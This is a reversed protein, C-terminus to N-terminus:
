PAGRAVPTRTAPPKSEIRKLAELLQSENPLVQLGSQLAEIAQQRRGISMNLKATELYAPWYDPKTARSRDFFDIAQVWDGLAAHYTGVRYFIEPLLVFEKPAHRLVYQFESIASGYLGARVQPTVGPAAARNAKLIGWCYHHMHEMMPGLRVFWDAREPGGQHYGWTHPCYEPLRAMEGGRLTAVDLPDAPAMQATAPLSILAALLMVVLSGRFSWRRCGFQLMTLTAHSM